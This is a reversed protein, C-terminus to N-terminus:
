RKQTLTLHSKRQSMLGELSIISHQSRKIKQHTRYPKKQADYRILKLDFYELINRFASLMPSSICLFKIMVYNTRIGLLNLMHYGGALLATVVFMSNFLEICDALKFEFSQRVEASYEALIAGTANNTLADKIYVV